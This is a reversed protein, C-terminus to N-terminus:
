RPPCRQKVEVDRQSKVWRGVRGSDGHRGVGGGRLERGLLLIRQQALELEVEAVQGEREVLEELALGGLVARDGRAHDCLRRPDHRERVYGPRAAGKGRWHQAAGHSRRAARRGGSREAAQTRWAYEIHRWLGRKRGLRRSQVSSRPLRQQEGEGRLGVRDEHGRAARVELAAVGQGRLVRCRRVGHVNSAHRLVSILGLHGRHQRLGLLRVREHGDDRHTPQAIQLLGAGEGAM